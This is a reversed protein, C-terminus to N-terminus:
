VLKCKLTNYCLKYVSDKTRGSCISELSTKHSNSRAYNNPMLHHNVIKDLIDAAYIYEIAPRPTLIGCNVDKQTLVTLSSSYVQNISNLSSSGDISNRKLQNISPLSDFITYTSFNLNSGLNM